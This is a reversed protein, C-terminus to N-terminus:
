IIWSKIESENQLKFLMEETKNAGWNRNKRRLCFITEVNIITTRTEDTFNQIYKFWIRIYFSSAIIIILALSSKVRLEFIQGGGELMVIQIQRRLQVQWFCMESYTFTKLDIALTLLDHHIIIKTLCQGVQRNDDHSTDLQWYTHWGRNDLNSECILYKQFSLNLNSNHM